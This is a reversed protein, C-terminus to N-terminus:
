QESLLCQIAIKHGLSSTFFLYNKGGDTIKFYKKITDTKEPFNRTKLNAKQGGILRKLTKKQYPLTSSIEYIKGPFNEIVRNSTYLHTNLDLKNLKFHESILRFAGSKMVAANPEYLFRQPTSFTTEASKEQSATFSFHETSSPHSNITHITAETGNKM